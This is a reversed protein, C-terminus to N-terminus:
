FDGVNAASGEGEMTGGGGSGPLALAFLEAVPAPMPEGRTMAGGGGAPPASLRVPDVAAATAAGLNGM